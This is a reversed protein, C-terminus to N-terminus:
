KVEEGKYIKWVVEEFEVRSPMKKFEVGVAAWNMGIKVEVPVTLWSGRIQRPREMSEVLMVTYEWAREPPVCAVVEDHVQANPAKGLNVKLWRAAPIFGMQNLWGACDSQMYFSYAEKMLDATIRVGPSRLYTAKFGWSNVLYGDRLLNERVWRFYLEPIQWLYKLYADIMRQCEKPSVIYDEKLLGESMTEGGMGRQAAHNVSKAFQRQLKTVVLANFILRATETHADYEWPKTNALAIMEPHGTYMKCIRDEIQSYDHRIMVCGEDALFTARREGRKVNQLNYGRRQPNKSSALRAQKTTLRYSCRIRGDSDWAGKVILHEKMKERHKIVLMAAESAPKDKNAIAIKRLATEDLTVKGRKKGRGKQEKLGLTGYFFRKLKIGSFDKKVNEDYEKVMGSSMIYGLCKAVAHDVYKAKPVEKTGWQDSGYFESTLLQDWEDNTPERLRGKRETAYLEEGAMEKLKGRMEDCERLLMKAIDKQAKVNVRMGHLMTDLLPQYMEVYHKFYFNLMGAQMLRKLLCACIEVPVCCDLGNYRYLSDMDRVYKVIEEAEKAEDKWYPQETYISALFELKHMENPDLCHHMCMTDYTINKLEIGYRAYWYADYLVNHGGKPNPLECLAKVYPLWFEREAKNAMPFTVSEDQRFAFGCCTLTNGWTEIDTFLPLQPNFCLHTYMRQWDQLTPGILMNRVPPQWERTLSHAQIRGWDRITRWEWSMTQLVGAPHITPIVKILRGHADKYVYISGRFSLIGAKKEAETVTMDYGLANYIRAAVKGKRLLAYLAYNGTPVIVYPDTLAAIRKHLDNMWYILDDVPVSKLRDGPPAPELPKFPYVNDVYVSERQIGAEAFFRNLLGGSAGAFPTGLAEESKWPSEGIIVIRANKPGAAEIRRSQM